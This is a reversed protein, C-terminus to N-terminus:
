YRVYSKLINTTVAQNWAWDTSMFDCWHRENTATVFERYPVYDMETKFDPNAAINRVLELPDRFYVKYTDNMWPPIDGDNPREGTYRVTLNQWPIDGLKILDIKSYVDKHTRYFSEPDGGADLLSARWIDLLADIDAASMQNRTYLFDALEYEVRNRFPSWDDVAKRPLPPPPTNEPLFVGQADCPRGVDHQPLNAAFTHVSRTRVTSRNTIIAIYNITVAQTNRMSGMTM